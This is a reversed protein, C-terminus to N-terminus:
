ASLAADVCGAHDEGLGAGHAFAIVPNVRRRPQHLILSTTITVSETFSINHDSVRPPFKLM